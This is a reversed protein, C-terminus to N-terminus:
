PKQPQNSLYHNVGYRKDIASRTKLVHGRSLM